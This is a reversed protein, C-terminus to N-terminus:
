IRQIPCQRGNAKIADFGAWITNNSMSVTVNQAWTLGHCQHKLTILYTNQGATNVLVHQNDLPSWDSIKDASDINPVSEGMDGNPSLAYLPPASAVALCGCFLAALFRSRSIRPNKNMQNM